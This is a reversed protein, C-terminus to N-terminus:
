KFYACTTSTSELQHFYCYAVSMLDSYNLTESKAFEAHFLLAIFWEDSHFQETHMKKRRKSKLQGYKDMKSKSVITEIKNRHEMDAHSYSKM